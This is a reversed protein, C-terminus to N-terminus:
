QVHSEVEIRGATGLVMRYSAIGRGLTFKEGTM